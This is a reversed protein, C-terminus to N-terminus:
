KVEVRDLIENLPQVEQRVASGLYHDSILYRLDFDTPPLDSGDLIKLIPSFSTPHVPSEPGDRVLGHCNSLFIRPHFTAWLGEDDKERHVVLILRASSSIKDMLRCAKSYEDKELVSRVFILSPVYRILNKLRKVRKKWTALDKPNNLDHHPFVFNKSIGLTRKLKSSKSIPIKVNRVKPTFDPNLLAECIGDMTSIIHDFPFTQLTLNQKRFWMALHCRQGLSVFYPAKLDLHGDKLRGDWHSIRSGKSVMFALHDVPLPHTHDLYWDWHKAKWPGMIRAANSTIGKKVFSAKYISFTTDLPARIFTLGATKENTEQPKNCFRAYRKEIITKDPNYDPLDDFRMMPGIGDLGRHKELFKIMQRIKAGPDDGLTVDPDNVGYFSTKPHTELYSQVTNTLSEYMERVTNVKQKWYVRFGERERTKLWEVTEFYDSGNDIFNMRINKALSLNAFVKELSWLRNFCIIFVPIPTNM